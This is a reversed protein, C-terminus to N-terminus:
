EVGWVGLVNRGSGQHARNKREELIKVRRVSMGVGLPGIITCLVIAWTVVLFINSSDTSVDNPSAFIGKSEAVGSILFGIEGRSCMALAIILPPHLSFPKSPNPSARTSASTTTERASNPRPTATSTSTSWFHPVYLQKLKSLVRRVNGKAPAIPFRVLWLGCAVKGLLMLITYVLGRWVIAGRFMRTIPISFGISAFFFPQLIKSVAPHYYRHYIASGSTAEDGNFTSSTEVPQTESPDQPAEEAKSTSTSQMSNQIEDSGQSGNSPEPSPDTPMTSKEGVAAAGQVTTKVVPHAVESDWWSISAGAVYAAFLNSTGAYTAGVVLGVLLLTHLVFATQPKRLLNELTEDSHTERYKNIQITVPRAIFLCAVPVVLAFAVSVLVPRVVVVWSFNSGGLNSIVQVMVLGVVDDMMAASTLVVGLRSASLGSSALVTFTTGLSTSCLAAGAAFAQLPTADLLGQLTYSLGVPLAIGTLAVGSSLLLNAKLSQFSTHLGGEFVLLLLGLYGLQVVADQVNSSLIKAGPTGWAIGVAIQGLLGCYLFKDFISNIVNLLLLFSTLILITIIDPEHYPLSPATEASDAAM